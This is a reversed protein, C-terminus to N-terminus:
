FSGSSIVTTGDTDYHTYTGTGNSNWTYKWQMQLAAGPSNQGLINMSGSRDTNSTSVYQNLLTVGDNEYQNFTSNTTSGSKNWTDKLALRSTNKFSNGWNYWDIEGNAGKDQIYYIPMSYSASDYSYKWWSNGTSQYYSLNVTFQLYSFSYTTSGDSNNTSKWNNVTNQDYVFAAALGSSFTNVFSASIALDSVSINSTAKTNIANPIKILSDKALTPEAYSAPKTSPSSDSKKCSSVITGILIAIVLLFNTLTKM